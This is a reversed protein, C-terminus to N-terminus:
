KKEKVTKADEAQKKLEAIQANAAQLQATVNQLQAALESIQGVQNGAIQQCFQMATTSQPAPQASALSVLFLSLPASLCLRM